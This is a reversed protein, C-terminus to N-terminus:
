VDAQRQQELEPIVLTCWWAQSESMPKPILSLHESECCATVLQAMQRARPYMDQCHEANSESNQITPCYLVVSCCGPEEARNQNSCLKVM